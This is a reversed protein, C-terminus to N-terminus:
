VAGNRGYATRQGAGRERSTDWGRCAPNAPAACRDALGALGAEQGGRTTGGSSSDAAAHLACRGPDRPSRQRLRVAAGPSSM